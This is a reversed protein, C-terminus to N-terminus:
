TIPRGDDSHGSLRSRPRRKTQGLPPLGQKEAWRDVRKRWAETSLPKKLVTQAINAARARTWRGQELAVYSQDLLMDENDTWEDVRTCLEDLAYQLREKEETTREPRVLSAVISAIDYVADPGLTRTAHYLSALKGLSTLLYRNDGTSPDTIEIARIGGTDRSSKRSRQTDGDTDSMRDVAEVM